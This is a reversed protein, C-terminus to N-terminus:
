WIEKLFDKFVEHLAPGHNLFYRNLCDQVKELKLIKRAIWSIPTPMSWRAQLLSNTHNLIDTDEPAKAFKYIWILSNVLLDLDTILLLPYLPWVRFGRIYYGWSSLITIDPMKWSYDQDSMHKPHNDPYCHNRRTNTTFLLARKLHGFFMRKLEPKLDLMGMAIVNPTWQDRSMRDSDSYWMTPDIHRLINGPGCDLRELNYEYRHKLEAYELPDTKKLKYLYAVAIAFMGERQATDGGDRGNSPLQAILGFSDIAPQVLDLYKSM